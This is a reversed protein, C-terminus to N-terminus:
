ATAIKLIGDWKSIFEDRAGDNHKYYNDFNTIIKNYNTIGTAIQSLTTTIQIFFLQGLKYCCTTKNQLICLQRLKCYTQRLKYYVKIAFFHSTFTNGDKRQLEYGSKKPMSTLLGWCLPRWRSFAETQRQLPIQTKQKGRVVIKIYVAFVVGILTAKSKKDIRESKSFSWTLLIRFVLNCKQWPLTNQPIFWGLTRQTRKGSTKFVPFTNSFM